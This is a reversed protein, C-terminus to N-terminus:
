AVDADERQDQHDDAGDHHRAERLLRGGLLVLQELLLCLAVCIVHAAGQQM